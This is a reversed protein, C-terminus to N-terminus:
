IHVERQALNYIGSHAGVFHTIPNHLCNRSQHSRPNPFANSLKKDANFSNTTKKILELYISINLYLSALEFSHIDSSKAYQLNWNNYFPTSKHINNCAISLKSRFIFIESRKTFISTIKKNRLIHKRFLM